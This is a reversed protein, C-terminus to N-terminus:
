DAGLGGHPLQARKTHKLAPTATGYSEDVGALYKIELHVSSSRFSALNSCVLNLSNFLKTRPGLSTSDDARLQENTVNPGPLDVRVNRQNRSGSSSDWRRVSPDPIVEARNVERIREDGGAIPEKGRVFRTPLNEFAVFFKSWRHSREGRKPCRSAVPLNRSFTPVCKGIRGRLGYTAMELVKSGDKVIWEFTTIERIKNNRM